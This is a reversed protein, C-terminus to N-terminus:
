IININNVIQTNNINNSLYKSCSNTGLFKYFKSHLGIGLNQFKTEIQSFFTRIISCVDKKMM